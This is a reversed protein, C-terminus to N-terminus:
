FDDSMPNHLLLKGSRPNVTRFLTMEMGEMGAEETNAKM